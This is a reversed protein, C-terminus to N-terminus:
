ELQATFQWNGTGSTIDISFVDSANVPLPNPSLTTFTSVTGVATGAAVTPNASFVATGNKKITFTLATTGDSAKTTVVCKVLSGAHPAALMPGVNTGTAGSGMVFGVVLVAAGAAPTAPEWDNNATSWTLVQGNTPATMSITRGRLGIVTQVTSTGSLDGGATFGGGGSTSMVRRYLAQIWLRSQDTLIGDTSTWAYGSQYNWFPITPTTGM